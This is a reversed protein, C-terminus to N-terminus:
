GPETFSVTHVGSRDHLDPDSDPGSEGVVSVISETLEHAMEFVEM